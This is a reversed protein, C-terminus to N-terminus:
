CKVVAGGWSIKGLFPFAGSSLVPSTAETHKNPSLSHTHTPPLPNWSFLLLLFQRPTFFFYSKTGGCSKEDGECGGVHDGKGM